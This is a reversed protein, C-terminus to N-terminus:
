RAAAKAAVIASAQAFADRLDAAIGSLRDLRALDPNSHFDILESLLFVYLAGLNEALKGGKERDLTSLLEGVVERCSALQASQVELNRAGAAIRVRRLGALLHDYLMVVLQGPSASLAGVDQYRSAQQRYSM